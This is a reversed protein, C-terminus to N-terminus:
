QRAEAGFIGGHPIKIMYGRRTNTLYGKNLVNGDTCFIDAGKIDVNAISIVTFNKGFIMIKEPLFLLYDFSAGAIQM